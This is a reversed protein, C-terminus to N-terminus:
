PAACINLVRNCAYLGSCYDAANRDFFPDSACPLSSGDPFATKDEWYRYSVAANHTGTPPQCGGFFNVTGTVGDFDFGNIRSRPLDDKNCVAPNSVSSIAVKLSASIPPRALKHGATSITSDVIREIANSISVSDNINGRIGGTGAIAVGTRQPSYQTEGCSQGAPCVIGHVPVPKRARNVWGSLTAGPTNFFPVYSEGGYSSQDDADALVIVVVDADPRFKTGSGGGPGMDSIAKAGGELAKERGSGNIGVWGSAGRTLWNKFTQIGTKDV